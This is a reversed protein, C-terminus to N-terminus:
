LLLPMDICFKLYLSCHSIMNLVILHCAVEVIVDVVLM